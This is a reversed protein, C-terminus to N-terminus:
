DSKIHDVTIDESETKDSRILDLRMWNLRIQDEKIEYWRVTDIIIWDCQQRMTDYRIFNGSETWDWRM